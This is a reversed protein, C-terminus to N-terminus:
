RVKKGCGLCVGEEDCEHDGGEPCKDQQAARAAEFAVPDQTAIVSVLFVLSYLPISPALGCAALMWDVMERLEPDNEIQAKAQGTIVRGLEDRQATTWTGFRHTM